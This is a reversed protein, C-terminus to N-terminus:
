FHVFHNYFFLNTYSENRVKKEAIQNLQQNKYYDKEEQSMGKYMYNISRHPGYVSKAANPNELM